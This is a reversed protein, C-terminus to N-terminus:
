RRRPEPWKHRLLRRTLLLSIGSQIGHSRSRSGVRRTRRREPDGLWAWGIARRWEGVAHGGETRRRPGRNGRLKGAFCIWGWKTAGAGGITTLTPVAGLAGNRVEVTGLPADDAIGNNEVAVKQLLAQEVDTDDGELTVIQLVGTGPDFTGGFRAVPADTSPACAGVIAVSAVLAFRTIHLM